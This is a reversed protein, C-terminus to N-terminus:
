EDKDLIEKIKKNEREEIRIIQFLSSAVGIFYGVILSIIIVAIM